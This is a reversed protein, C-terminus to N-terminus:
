AAATGNRGPPSGITGRCRRHPLRAREAATAAAAAASLRPAYEEEGFLLFSLAFWGYLLPPQNDFLDRYPLQGDLLKLAVTSYVAEDGFLPEGAFPLYLLAPILSVVAILAADKTTSCRAVLSRLRSAPSGM